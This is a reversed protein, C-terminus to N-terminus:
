QSQEETYAKNQLTTQLLFNQEIIFKILMHPMTTQSQAKVV